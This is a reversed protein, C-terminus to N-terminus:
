SEQSSKQPHQQESAWAAHEQSVRGEVREALLAAPDKATAYAGASAIYLFKEHKLAEATSRYTTWNSHFQFLQQVSELVVVLAGLGGAIWVALDAAAIVPIVAAAVIQVVKIRMYWRKNSRAHSGYWKIQAELREWAAPREPTAAEAPEPASTVPQAAIPTTTASM